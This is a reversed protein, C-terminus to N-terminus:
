KFKKGLRIFPFEVFRFTFASIFIVLLAVQWASFNFYVNLFYFFPQHLLYVSYCINGIFLLPIFNTVKTESIIYFIASAGVLYGLYNTSFLAFAICVISVLRFSLNFKIKSSYAKLLSGLIFWLQFRLIEFHFKNDGLQESIQGIFIHIAFSSLILISYYFNKRTYFYKKPLSVTLLLTLSLWFEMVIFFAINIPSYDHASKFLIDLFFLKFLITIPDSNLNQTIAAFISVLLYLPMLRLYRTIMFVRFNDSRKFSDFLVYGSAVFFVTPGQGGLIVAKTLIRDPFSEAIFIDFMGIGDFHIIMVGLAAIGRLYTAHNSLKHSTFFYKM